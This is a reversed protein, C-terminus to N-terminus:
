DLHSLPLTDAQSYLDWGVASGIKKKDCKSTLAENEKLSIIHTNLPPIAVMNRNKQKDERTSHTLPFIKACKQAKDKAQTSASSICM